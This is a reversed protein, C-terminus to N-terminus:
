IKKLILYTQYFSLQIQDPNELILQYYIKWFRNILLQIDENSRSHNSQLANKLVFETASRIFDTHFQAFEERTMDGNKWQKDLQFDIKEINSKILQFSYKQFLEMDCCEEYSRLYVPITYNRLEDENLPVMQACKYLLNYIDEVLSLGQENVSLILLILIGGQILELSRNKLFFQYDEKAQSQFAQLEQGQAYISICHNTINSPKKSLWHISSSSYGITLCNSPLCQNYFSKGNGCGFYIDEQKNLLNFLTNWDNTSLDNHIILFSKENEYKEKILDIILKM